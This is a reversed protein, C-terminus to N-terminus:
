LTPMSKSSVCRVLSTVLQLKRKKSVVLGSSCSTKWSFMGWAIPVSKLRPISDRGHSLLLQMKRVPTEPSRAPEPNRAGDVAQEGAEHIELDRESTEGSGQVDCAVRRCLAPRTEGRNGRREVPIGERAM